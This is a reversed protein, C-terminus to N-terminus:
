TAEVPHLGLVTLRLRASSLMTVSWYPPMLTSEFRRLVTLLCFTYVDTSTTPRSNRALLPIAYPNVAM